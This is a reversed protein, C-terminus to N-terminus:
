DHKHLKKIEGLTQIMSPLKLIKIYIGIPTLPPLIELSIISVLPVSQQQPCCKEQMYRLHKQWNKQVLNFSSMWHGKGHHIQVTLNAQPIAELQSLQFFILFLLNFYYISCICIIINLSIVHFIIWTILACPETSMLKFLYVFIYQIHM